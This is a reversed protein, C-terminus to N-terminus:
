GMVVLLLLLVVWVVCWVGGYAGTNSDSKDKIEVESTSFPRITECFM